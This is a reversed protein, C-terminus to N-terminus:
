TLPALWAHRRGRGACDGDVAPREVPEVRVNVVGRQPLEQPGVVGVPRDAAIFLQPDKLLDLLVAHDIGVLEGIQPCYAAIAPQKARRAIQGIERMVHREAVRGVRM